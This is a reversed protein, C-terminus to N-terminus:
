LRVVKNEFQPGIYPPGFIRVRKKTPLAKAVTLEHENPLPILVAFRTLHDIVTLVWICSLGTPSRSMTKYEVLDVYVRQFLCDVPLHDM